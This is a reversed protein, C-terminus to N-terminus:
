KIEKTFTINSLHINDVKFEPPDFYQFNSKNSPENTLLAWNFDLM